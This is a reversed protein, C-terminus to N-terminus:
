KFAVVNHPLEATTSIPGIAKAFNLRYCRATGMTLGPVGRGLSFNVTAIQTKGEERTIYAPDFCGADILEQRFKQPSKSVLVCYRNFGEVTLYVEGPDRIIRMVPMGRLPLENQTAGEFCTSITKGEGVLHALMLSFDDEASRQHDQTTDRLSAMHQFAWDHMAPISFNVLRLHKLIKGAIVTCAITYIYFREKGHRVGERKSLDNVVKWLQKEVKDKNAMVFRLFQVGVAGYGSRVSNTLEIFDSAHRLSDLRPYNELPIEFVRMQAAEPNVRSETLKLFINKNGTIFSIGRWPPSPPRPTGDQKLRARAVGNSLMYLIHSTEQAGKNTMEDFLHPLNNFTSCQVEVAGTSVEDGTLVNKNREVRGFASLAIKCVTSKGYGSEDSTIAVPIGNYEEANLIPVLTSGFAACIAFQYPQGHPLNYLANVAYSWDEAPKDAEFLESKHAMFGNVRVPKVEDPTILRDGILFHNDPRTWGMQSFTHTDDVHRKLLDLYAVIYKEMHAPSGVVGLSALRKGMNHHDKILEHPFTFSRLQGERVFVACDSEQRGDPGVAITTFYFPLNAAHEWVKEWDPNAKTGKNRDMLVQLSGDAVIRACDPFVAPTFPVMEGTDDRYPQAKVGGGYGLALPSNCRMTCTNCPSDAGSDEQRFTSCRTAGTANWTDIKAQTEEFTYGPYGNASWEHIYREGDDARVLVGICLRWINYPLNSDAKFRAIQGCQKAIRLPDSGAFSQTGAPAGLASNYNPDGALNPKAASPALLISEFATVSRTLTKGMWAVRVPYTQASRTKVDHWTTGVPRLVRAADATVAPDALLGHEKTLTKLAKALPLWRDVPLDADFPWYAHLGKGSSVVLSPAPFQTAKVFARLANFAEQQSEYSIGSKKQVDLDLFLSRLYAANNVKRGQDDDIFTALAHYINVTKNQYRAIMEVLDDHTEGAWQDKWGNPGGRDISIFKEGKEPVVLQLFQATTLTM